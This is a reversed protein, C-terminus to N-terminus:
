NVVIKLKYHNTTSVLFYVGSSLSETEIELTEFGSNPKYLYTQIITGYSNLLNLYLNESIQNGMKVIIPNGKKVPNNNLKPHISEVIELNLFVVSDCGHVNELILSDITNSQNYSEGNVWDYEDFETINDISFSKCTEASGIDRVGYINGTQAGSFDNPDGNNIAISPPIPLLTPTKMNGNRELSELNLVEKNIQIKDTTLTDAMTLDSFINYGLSKIPNNRMTNVTKNDLNFLITGKLVVPDNDYYVSAAERLYTCQEILNETNEIDSYITSNIINTGTFRWMAPPQDHKSGTIYSYGNSISFTSGSTESKNNYFTSNNINLYSLQLYKFIYSNPNGSTHGMINSCFAGGGGITSNQSFTSHNIETRFYRLNINKDDVLLPNYNLNVVNIYIGGGYQESNNLEILSNDILLRIKNTDLQKDFRTSDVCFLGGGFEAQCARIVGNTFKLVEVNESYIAGGNGQTYGNTLILSDLHVKQCDNITFIRTFNQGSISISDSSNYLGKILIDTNITISSDLFIIQSGSALLDSHFEVTDGNQANSIAYRLSGSGSDSLSTVYHIQAFVINHCIFILFFLIHRM